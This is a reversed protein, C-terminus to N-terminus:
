SYIGYGALPMPLRVSGKAAQPTLPYEDLDPGM